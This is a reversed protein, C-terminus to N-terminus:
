KKFYKPFVKPNSKNKKINTKTGYSKDRFQQEIQEIAKLKADIVEDREFGSYHSVPDRGGGLCRDCYTVSDGLGGCARCLEYKM